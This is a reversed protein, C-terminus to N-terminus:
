VRGCFIARFLETIVYLGILMVVTVIVIVTIIQYHLQELLSKIFGSWNPNSYDVIEDDDMFPANFVCPLTGFVTSTEIVSEDLETKVNCVSEPMRTMIAPDDYGLAWDEPPPMSAKEKQVRNRIDQVVKPYQEAVNVREYPDADLDFLLTQGKKMWVTELWPTDPKVVNIGHMINYMSTTLKSVGEGHLWTAERSYFIDWTMQWLESIINWISFEEPWYIYGTPEPYWNENYTNGEIFKWKGQIYSTMNILPDYQIFVSDRDSMTGRRIAELQNVGDTIYRDSDYALSVPEGLYNEAALHVLTELFDSIHMLGKFEGTKGFYQKQSLDTIFAPVKSGGEFPSTKTSRYPWNNGGNLEYGGNDSSVIIVTNEGLNDISARVLDNMASDIGQMQACFGRRYRHTMHKCKEVHEPLAQIPTHCAQFAVYLFAPDSPRSQAHKKMFDIANATIKTTSYRPDIFHELTYPDATSRAWDFATMKGYPFSNSFHGSAANFMGVFEDFGNMTPLYKKKGYGLHWKGSMYTGYGLKKLERPLTYDVDIGFPSWGMLHACLGIKQGYRGTMLAARTPTCVPHVYYNTLRIGKGSLEDLYPTPVPSGNYGVDHMGVDDMMVFVINPMEGDGSVLTIFFYFLNYMGSFSCSFFVL